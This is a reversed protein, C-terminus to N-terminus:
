SLRFFADRCTWCSNLLVPCMIWWTFYIRRFFTQNVGAQVHVARSVNFGYRVARGPGPPQRASWGKEVTLVLLAFSFSLPHLVFLCLPFRSVSYFARLGNPWLPPPCVTPFWLSVVCQRQQPRPGPSFRGRDSSVSTRADDLCSCVFLRGNLRALFVSGGNIKKPRLPPASSPFFRHPHYSSHLFLVHQSSSFSSINTHKDTHELFMFLLKLSLQSLHWCLNIIREKRWKNRLKEKRDNPWKDM